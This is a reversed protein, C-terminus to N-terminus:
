DLMNTREKEEKKQRCMDTLMCKQVRSSISLAPRQQGNVTVSVLADVIITDNIVAEKKKERQRRKWLKWQWSFYKLLLFAIKIKTFPKIQRQKYGRPGSRSKTGSCKLRRSVKLCLCKRSSGTEETVCLLGEMCWYSNFSVDVWTIFLYQEKM